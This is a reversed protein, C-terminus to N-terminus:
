RGIARRNQGPVVVAQDGDIDGLRIVGLPLTPAVAHRLWVPREEAVEAVLDTVIEPVDQHAVIRAQLAEALDEPVLPLIVTVGQLSMIGISRLFIPLLFEDAGIGGGMRPFIKGLSPSVIEM